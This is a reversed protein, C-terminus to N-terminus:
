AQSPPKKQRRAGPQARPRAPLKKRDRRSFACFIANFNLSVM